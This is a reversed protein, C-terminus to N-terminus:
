HKSIACACLVNECGLSVCVQCLEPARDEWGWGAARQVCRWPKEKRMWEQQFGWSRVTPAFTSIVWKEAGLILTFYKLNRSCVPCGRGRIEAQPSRSMMHWTVLAWCGIQPREVVRQFGCVGVSRDSCGSCKPSCIIFLNISIRQGARGTMSPPPLLPQDPAPHCLDCTAAKISWKLLMQGWNLGVERWFVGKGEKRMVSYNSLRRPLSAGTQKWNVPALAVFRHGPWQLLSAKQLRSSSFWLFHFRTVPLCTQFM